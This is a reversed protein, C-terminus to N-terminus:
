VYYKNIREFSERVNDDNIYRLLLEDAIKHAEEPFLYYKRGFKNGEVGAYQRDFIDILDKVLEEKTM